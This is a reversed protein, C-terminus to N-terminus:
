SMLYIDLAAGTPSGQVDGLYFEAFTSLVGTQLEMSSITVSIHHGRSNFTLHKRFNMRHFLTIKEFRYNMRLCNVKRKCIMILIFAICKVFM